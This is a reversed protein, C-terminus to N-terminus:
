KTKVVDFQLLTKAEYVIHLSLPAQSSDNQGLGMVLNVMMKRRHKCMKVIRCIGYERESNRAREIRKGRLGGLRAVNCQLSTIFDFGLFPVFTM